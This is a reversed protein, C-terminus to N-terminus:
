VLEEEAMLTITHINEFGNDLQEDTLEIDGLYKDGALRIHKKILKEISM